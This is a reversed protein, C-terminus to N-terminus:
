LMLVQCRMKTLTGRFFLNVFKVCFLIILNVHNYQLMFELVDCVSVTLSHHMGGVFSHLVDNCYAYVATM